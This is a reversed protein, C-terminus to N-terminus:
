SGPSRGSYRLRAPITALRSGRLLRFGVLSLAMLGVFVATNPEPVARLSLTPDGVIVEDSFINNGADTSVLTLFRADGPISLDVPNGINREALPTIHTQMVGDVFVWADALIQSGRDHTADGFVATFSTIAMGPNATRIADLDFTIGKNAHLGIMSNGSSSYDVGSLTSGSDFNPGNWIYDWTNDTSKLFGAFTHGASDLTVVSNPTPLSVGDVFPLGSVPHYVNSADSFFASHSTVVLGSTQNIGQSMGTGFGNGGGVVDALSLEIDARTVSLTLTGWAIFLLALRWAAGFAKAVGSM